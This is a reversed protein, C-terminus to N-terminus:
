DITSDAGAPLFGHGPFCYLSRSCDFSFTKAVQGPQSRWVDFEQSESSGSLKGDFPLM